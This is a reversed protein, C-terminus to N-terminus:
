KVIENFIDTCGKTGDFVADGRGRTVCKDLYNTMIEAAEQISLGHVAVINQDIFVAATKKHHTREHFLLNMPIAGNDDWDLWLTSQMNPNTMTFYLATFIQTNIASCHRQLKEQPFLFAPLESQLLVRFVVLPGASWIKKFAEPDSTKQTHVKLEKMLFNLIAQNTINLFTTSSPGGNSFLLDILPTNNLSIQGGVHVTHSKKFRGNTRALDSAKMGHARLLRQICLDLTAPRSGRFVSSEGLLAIVTEMDEWTKTLLKDATDARNASHAQRLFNYLHAYGLTLGDANQVLLVVERVAHLAVFLITGALFPNMRIWDGKHRDYLEDPQYNEDLGKAKREHKVRTVWIPHNSMWVLSDGMTLPDRFFSKLKSREKNDLFLASGKVVEHIYGHGSAHSWTELYDAFVSAVKKRNDKRDHSPESPDRCDDTIQPDRNHDGESGDLPKDSRQQDDMAQPNREHDGGGDSPKDSEQDDDVVQLTREYDNRGDSRKNLPVLPVLCDQVGIYLDTYLMMEISINTGYQYDEKPELDDDFGRKLYGYWEQTFNDMVPPRERVDKVMYLIDDMAYLLSQNRLPVDRRGDSGRRELLSMATPYAELFEWVCNYTHLCGYTLLSDSPKVVCSQSGGMMARVKARVEDTQRRLLKSIEPRDLLKHWFGEADEIEPFSALFEHVLSKIMQMAAQTTAAASVFDVGDKLHYLLWIGKVVGKIENYDQLLMNMAIMRDDERNDVTYNTKSTTAPRAVFTSQGGSGPEQDALEGIDLKSFRTNLGDIPTQTAHDSPKPTAKGTTIFPKLLNLTYELTGTFTAHAENSATFTHQLNPDVHETQNEHWKTSKTRQRIARAAARSAYLPVVFKKPPKKAIADACTRLDNITVKRAQPSKPEATRAKGKLRGGTASTPAIASPVFGCRSATEVLWTVFIETDAKYERYSNAINDPLM